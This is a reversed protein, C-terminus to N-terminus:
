CFFPLRCFNVFLSCVWYESSLVLLYFHFRWECVLLNSYSRFSWPVDGLVYSIHSFRQYDLSESPFPTRLPAIVCFLLLWLLNKAVKYCRTQVNSYFAYVTFLLSDLHSSNLIIHRSVRWEYHQQLVKKLLLTLWTIEKM